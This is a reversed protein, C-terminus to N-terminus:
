KIAKIWERILELSEAHVTKRGVEPMMEGPDTSELRYTLISEEPKGPVIDFPRGGSGRGAAVPTKRIGLATLDTASISLNLGSTMAPGNPNHCHACNIDLWARARDNLSGTEPKNWIPTKPCKDLSPMGSLIKAQQWHMLQNEPKGAVNYALEGNLQRISPGIPVLAENRNHCGKCQNLNPITYEHQRSKGNADVYRVTKTDGAVELFADTQEDNWVYDFAKWGESQHILLRTEMLRRGKTVDRFDNPYYFTKILTTGVPFNLVSTDNYAVTEGEPLKVFRLKEAYDSFLPTNLAYPVVGAAPKQGAISGTFFGYDSLKEPVAVTRWSGLTLWGFTLLSAWFLWIRM